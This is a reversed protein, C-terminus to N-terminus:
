INESKVKYKSGSVKTNYSQLKEEEFNVYYNKTFTNKNFLLHSFAYRYM